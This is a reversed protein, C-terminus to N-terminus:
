QDASFRCPLQNLALSAARNSQHPQNTPGAHCGSKRREQVELQVDVAERRGESDVGVSEGKRCTSRLKDVGVSEGKRCMAM